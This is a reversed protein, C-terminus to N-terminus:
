PKKLSALYEVLDVLEETSMLGQLGAPMLSSPLKERKAIDTKKYRNEIGGPMVMVLEEATESRVIGLAADGNNLSVQTTEFGMSLGANPALISEYLADKGLKSGIESLAPGVDAGVKGVKHCTICTSEAKAYLAKGRAVNGKKKALEALPPLAQGGAANPLPFLLAIEKKFKAQQVAALATAAAFKLEEPFQGNKALDVLAAIGAQSQTLARTAAKRLLPDRRADTMMPQLLALARADATNGL